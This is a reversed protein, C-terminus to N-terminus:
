LLFPGSSNEVGFEVGELISGHVVLFFPMMCNRIAKWPHFRSFIPFGHFHFFGFFFFFIYIYIYICCSGIYTPFSANDNDYLYALKPPSLHIWEWNKKVKERGDLIVLVKVAQVKVPESRVKVPENRRQDLLDLRQRWPFDM